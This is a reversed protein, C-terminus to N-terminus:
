WPNNMVKRRRKKPLLIADPVDASGHTSKHTTEADIGAIDFNRPKEVNRDEAERQARVQALEKQLAKEKRRVDETM